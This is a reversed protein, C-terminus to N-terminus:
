PMLGRVVRDVLELNGNAIAILAMTTACCGGSVLGVALVVFKAEGQQQTMMEAPSPGFGKGPYVPLYKSAPKSIERM